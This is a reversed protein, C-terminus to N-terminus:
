GVFRRRLAPTPVRCSESKGFWVYRHAAFYEYAADRVVRPVLMLVYLLPWPLRLWRLMRLAAASRVYAREGEVLAMSRLEGPLGRERVIRQGLESQLSAFQLREHPDRDIMWLVADNCFNCVGDFLVLVKTDDPM